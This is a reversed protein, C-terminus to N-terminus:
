KKFQKIGLYNIMRLIATDLVSVPKISTDVPNFGILEILQRNTIRRLCLSIFYKACKRAEIQRERESHDVLNKTAM